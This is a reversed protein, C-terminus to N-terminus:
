LGGHAAGPGEYHVLFTRIDMPQLTVRRPDLKTVPKSQSPGTTPTWVLRSIADLPQFGGLNMEQVSTITFASFLDQVNDEGSRGEGGRLDVESEETGGCEGVNTGVTGCRSRGRVAGAGARVRRRGGDEREAGGQRENASRRRKAGGGRPTM